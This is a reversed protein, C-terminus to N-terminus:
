PTGGQRTGSKRKGADSGIIPKEGAWAWGGMENVEIVAITAAKGKREEIINLRSEGCRRADAALSDITKKGRAIYPEKSEKAILSAKRRTEM